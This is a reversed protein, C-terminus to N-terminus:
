PPPGGGIRAFCWGHARPNIKVPPLSGKLMQMIPAPPEDAGVEALSQHPVSLVRDHGNIEPAVLDLVQKRRVLGPAAADLEVSEVDGVVGAQFDQDLFTVQNTVTLDKFTVTVELTNAM